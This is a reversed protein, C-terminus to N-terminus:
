GRRGLTAHRRRDPRARPLDRHIQRRDIEDLASTLAIASTGPVLLAAMYYRTDSYSEGLYALLVFCHQCTTSSSRPRDRFSEPVSV